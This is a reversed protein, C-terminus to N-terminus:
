AASRAVEALQRLHEAKRSSVLVVGNPRRILANRLRQLAVDSATRASWYSQQDTGIAGYTIDPSRGTDWDGERTQVVQVLEPALAAVSVIGKWGGALGFARILGRSHLSSLEARIADSTSLRDPSPEHLLLLDIWDTRLRRLSAEVSARLGDPTMPPMHRQWLGALRAVSRIGRLPSGLAPLSGLVPDIDIGYKTVVVFRDRRGRLFDGLETEAVGDGYVPATDFHAFGLEAAAALISQRSRRTLYHLRSTGYGLRSTTIGCGALQVSALM